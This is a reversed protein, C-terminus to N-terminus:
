AASQRDVLLAMAARLAADPNPATPFPQDQMRKWAEGELVHISVYYPIDPNSYSHWLELKYMKGQIVILGTKILEWAEDIGQISSYDELPSSHPPM